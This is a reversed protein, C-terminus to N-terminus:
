PLFFGNVLTDTEEAQLILERYQSKAACDAILPFTAPFGDHPTSQVPPPQSSSSQAQLITQDHLEAATTPPPTPPANVM